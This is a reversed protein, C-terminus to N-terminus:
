IRITTNEEVAKRALDWSVEYHAGAQGMYGTILYLTPFRKRAGVLVGSEIEGNINVKVGNTRSKHIIDIKDQYTM